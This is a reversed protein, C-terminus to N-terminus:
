TLPLTIRMCTGANKRPLAEIRGGLNHIITYSVALGLGTGRGPAKTTFFPDFVAELHGAAIGVGNDIFDIVLTAGGTKAGPGAPGPNYTRITLAGQGGDKHAFIADRANLMLNLFVQRLQAGNGMIGDRGAALELSLPIEATLPQLQFIDAVQRLVAHVALSATDGPAPRAFDLLQRIIADIRGIEAEARAVCDGREGADLDGQKLLELYGLVIGIPNGIEHAIGAALRGVSALKEARVVDNQAQRLERNARELSDVTANLAERDADIRVLIRNLSGSLINFENNGPVSLIFGQGDDRYTEARKVLNALPKVTLRALRHLGFLVLVMANILIFILLFQQIRKLRTNLPALDVALAVGWLAEQGRELPASFLLWRHTRFLLGWGPDTYAVRLAKSHRAQGALANLREGMAGKQPVAGALITEGSPKQMALVAIDFSHALNELSSAAPGRSAPERFSSTGEGHTSLLALLRECRRIENDLLTQRALTIFVWDLMLMGFLILFALNLTISTKLGWKFM